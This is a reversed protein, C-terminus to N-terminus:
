ERSLMAFAAFGRNPRESPIVGDKEEGQGAHAAPRQDGDKESADEQSLLKSFMKLHHIKMKNTDESYKPDVIVIKKM